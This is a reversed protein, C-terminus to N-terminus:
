LMASLDWDTGRASDTLLSCHMHQVSKLFYCLVHHHLASEAVDLAMTCCVQAEQPRHCAGHAVIATRYHLQNPQVGDEKMELLVRRVDVLSQALGHAKILSTYASVM